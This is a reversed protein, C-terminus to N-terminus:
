GGGGFALFIITSVINFTAHIAVSTWLNGSQEYAWGLCLSLLFIPPWTWPAHVSAFVASTLIIAGWTAWKPPVPQGEANTRAPAMVALMRRFITQAHGRFLLEEAVPAVVAAGLVLVVRVLPEGADGLVRLLEHESPHTFHVARYVLETVVAGAFVLPIAVISLAAGSALGRRAQGPSFGLPALGGGFLALDCALLSLFAALHPVTSLFAVDRPPLDALDIGKRAPAPPAVAPLTAPRTAQTAAAGAPALGRRAFYFSPVAQWVFLAWLLALVLPWVSRGAPVREPLDLPRRRVLRLALPAAFVLCAAAAVANFVVDNPAAGAAVITITGAM